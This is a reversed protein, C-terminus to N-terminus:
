TFSVVMAALLVLLVAIIVVWVIAGLGFRSLSATAM